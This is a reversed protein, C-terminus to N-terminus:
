EVAATVVIEVLLEKEALAAEVCARAPAHGPEVWNDWVENMEDFYSIDKLYITAMLIKTKDSGIDKLVREINALAERTQTQVDKKGENEEFCCQGCLYAVGNHIVAESLRKGVNYRKIM